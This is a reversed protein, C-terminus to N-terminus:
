ADKELIGPMKLFSNIPYKEKLNKQELYLPDIRTETQLRRTMDKGFFSEIYEQETYGNLRRGPTTITDGADNLQPFDISSCLVSRVTKDLAPFNYPDNDRLRQKATTIDAKESEPNLEAGKKIGQKLFHFAKYSAYAKKQLSQRAAETKDNEYISTLDIHPNATEFEKVKQDFRDKELKSRMEGFNESNKTLYKHDEILSQAFRRFKQLRKRSPLQSDMEKEFDRLKKRSERVAKLEEVTKSENRAQAMFYQMDMSSHDLNSKLFIDIPDLDYYPNQNELLFLRAEDAHSFTLFAYGLNIDTSEELLQSLQNAQKKTILGQKVQSKLDATESYDFKYAGFHDSDQIQRFKEDLLDEKRRRQSVSFPSQIRDLADQADRLQDPTLKSQDILFQDFPDTLSDLKSKLAKEADIVDQIVKKQGHYLEDFPLDM